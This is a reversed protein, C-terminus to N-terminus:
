AVSEGAQRRIREEKRGQMDPDDRDREGYRFLEEFQDVVILLGAGRLENEQRKQRTWCGLPAGGIEEDLEVVEWAHEDPIPKRADIGHLGRVISEALKRYPQGEPRMLAVRWDPGLVPVRGDRM